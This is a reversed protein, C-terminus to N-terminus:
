PTLQSLPLCYKTEETVTLNNGIHPQKRCSDFLVQDGSSQCQNTTKIPIFCHQSLDIHKTDRQTAPTERM